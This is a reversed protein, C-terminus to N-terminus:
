QQGEAPITSAAIYARLDDPRVRTLRGLKVIPVRRQQFIRRVYRPNLGTEAAATAIDWLRVDSDPQSASVSM